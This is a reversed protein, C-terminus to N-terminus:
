GTAPSSGGSELPQGTGQNASGSKPQTSRRLAELSKRDAARDRVRALVGFTCVAILALLAVIGILLLGWSFGGSFLGSNTSGPAQAASVQWSM